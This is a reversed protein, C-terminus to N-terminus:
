EAKLIKHAIDPNWEGDIMNKFELKAWHITCDSSCNENLEKLYRQIPTLHAYADILKQKDSPFKIQIPEFLPAVKGEVEAVKKWHDRRYYPPPYKMMYHFKKFEVKPDKVYHFINTKTLNTLVILKNQSM